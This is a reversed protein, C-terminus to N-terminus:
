SAPAADGSAVLPLLVEFTTGRNVVSTLAITGGCDRVINYVISLGLGTGTQPDKTTFFPEFIQAQIEGPIGTGTDEVRLCAYRGAPLGVRLAAAGDFDRREVAITLTGGDPMADRANVALNMVVQEIQTPEARVLAPGAGAEVRLVIRSGAVRRLTPQMDHVAAGLDFVRPPLPQQRSFALLQRTLAAGREAANAIEEADQRSPSDPPLRALLLDSSGEIAALINNFDHAIGRALRGIAEMKQAQRLQEELARRETVDEVIGEFYAEAEESQVVRVSLRVRIPTGDKRRWDVEEGTTTEEGAHKSMLRLRDAPDRYIDTGLNLALLETTSGYGLMAALAPNADLVQGDVSSRYIGYAAGQILSRYRAESRRLAEEAQKQKTIDRAIAQVGVIVDDEIVLQVNQGLWVITGDSSVAPFEFYTNPLRRLFQDAYFAGARDRYDPRIFQLFHRGLLDSDRYKLLTAGRRSFFRLCGGADCSYIIDSAHDVLYRYRLESDHLAREAHRRDTIDRYNVIIGRVVPDALRNVAQWEVTRWTGDKHRMRFEARVPVDPHALVAALRADILRRDEPHVLELGPRGEREAATWGLVREISEGVYLVTGDEALLGIADFSHAVLAHFLAASPRRSGPASM